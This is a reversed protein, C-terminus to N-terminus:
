QKLRSIDIGYPHRPPPPARLKRIDRKVEALMVVDTEAVHRSFDALFAQLPLRQCPQPGDRLLGDLRALLTAHQRRHEADHEPTVHGGMLDEQTRAHKDFATRCDAVVGHVRQICRPDTCIGAAADGHCPPPLKGILVGLSAHDAEIHDLLTELIMRGM